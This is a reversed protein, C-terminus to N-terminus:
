NNEKAGKLIQQPTPRERACGRAGRSQQGRHVRRRRPRSRPPPSAAGGKGEDRRRRSAAVVLCVPRRHRHRRPGRRRRADRSSAGLGRGSTASSITFRWPFRRSDGPSAAATALGPSCMALPSRPPWITICLLWARPPVGLGRFTRRRPAPRRAAARRAERASRERHAQKGVDEPARPKFGGGGGGGGGGEGTVKARRAKDTIGGVDFEIASMLAESRRRRAVDTRRTRRRRERRLSRGTHRPSRTPVAQAFGCNRRRRRRRHAAVARSRAGGGGHGCSLPRRRRRRRRRRRHHPTIPPLVDSVDDGERPCSRSPIAPPRRSM